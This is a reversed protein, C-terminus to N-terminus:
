EIVHTKPYASLKPQINILISAARAQQSREPERFCQGRLFEILQLVM